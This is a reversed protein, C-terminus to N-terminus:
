FLVFFFTKFFDHFKLFYFYIFFLYVNWFNPFLFFFFLILQFPSKFWSESILMCFGQNHLQIISEFDYLNQFMARKVIERHALDGIQTAIVSCFQM